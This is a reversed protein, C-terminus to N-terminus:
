LVKKLNERSLSRLYALLNTKKDINRDMLYELPVKGTLNYYICDQAQGTRYTRYTSQLRHGYDFTKDWYVIVNRDQLNLGYSHKGYSHVLINPFRKAVQQQSEIFKCYVIIKQPDNSQVIRELLEFKESACCYSHQMKQTMELFFSGGLTYLTEIDLYYDKLQQYEDLMIQDIDYYLDHYQQKIDLKLSSEFIYPEILSYLYDVNHYKVIFEQTIKRRGIRKEIKTYECFIDKFRHMTMNLIKPSLFEFQSWLDLLNRTIETGNLILRYDTLKGLEIIRKTRKAEWNKIKISEDVVMFGGLQELKKYIKVYQRDSQGITEVGIIDIECPLEGCKDLEIRLNNKTQFPTVWLVYPLNPASKVLEFAARTKGTGPDMFLAGVRNQVLKQKAAIQQPLLTTM